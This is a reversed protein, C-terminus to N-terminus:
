LSAGKPILRKIHALSAIKQLMAASQAVTANDYARQAELVEIYTALGEKYRGKTIAVTKSLAQAAMHKAEITADLRKTDLIAEYLEQWLTLERARLAEEAM